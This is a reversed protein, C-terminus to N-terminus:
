DLVQYMYSNNPNFGTLNLLHSCEELHLAGFKLKFYWEFKLLSQVNLLLIWHSNCVLSEKIHLTQYMFGWPFRNWKINLVFEHNFKHAAWIRIPQNLFCGIPQIQFCGICRMTSKIPNFGILNLLTNCRSFDRHIRHDVEVSVYDNKRDFLIHFHSFCFGRFM